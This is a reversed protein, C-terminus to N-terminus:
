APPKFIGVANDEGKEETETVDSTHEEDPKLIVKPDQNLEAETATRKLKKLKKKKKLQDEDQAPIEVHDPTSKELVVTEKELKEKKKKKKKKLPKEENVPDLIKEVAPEKEVVNGVLNSEEIIGLLSEESIKGKSENRLEDAQDDYQVTKFKKKKKRPPQDNTLMEIAEVPPEENVKNLTEPKGETALIITRSKETVVELNVKIDLDQEVLQRSKEDKEIKLAELQALRERKRKKQERKRKKKLDKSSLKSGSQIDSEENNPEKGEDEMEETETHETLGNNAISKGNEVVKSIKVLKDKKSILKEKKNNALLKANAKQLEKASKNINIKPIDIEEDSLNPGLPFVDSAVDKFRKSLRYLIDRNAKKVGEGM